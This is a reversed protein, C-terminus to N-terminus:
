YYTYYRTQVFNRWFVCKCNQPLLWVLAWRSLLWNQSARTKFWSRISHLAFITGFSYIFNPGVVLTALLVNRSREIKVCDTRTLKTKQWGESPNRANRQGTLLLKNRCWGFPNRWFFQTLQSSLGGISKIEAACHVLLVFMMNESPKCYGNIKRNRNREWTKKLSDLFIKREYFGYVAAMELGPRPPCPHHLLYRLQVVGVTCHWITSVINAGGVTQLPWQKVSLM